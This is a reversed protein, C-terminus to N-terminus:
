FIKLTRNSFKEKNKGKKPFTEIQFKKPLKELLFTGISAQLRRAAAGCIGRQFEKKHNQFTQQIKKKPIKGKRKSFNINPFEKSFKELYWKELLFTEFCPAKPLPAKPLVISSDLGPTEVFEM